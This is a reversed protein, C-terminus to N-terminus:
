RKGIAFCALHGERDRCIIRGNAIAVHPWAAAAFINDKMALERYVKPSRKATEVLALKGNRGYVILRNDATVICSGPDGFAGGEWRQEGTQWDLCRVKQWVFYVHGDHVIPTCVKSPYKQQWVKEAGALTIKLKCIAYQNYASTVLVFNDKVAASAINNAFDTIWPYSAVTKGEKGADLRIVALNRQTLLAVCPVGEITIPTPGANHGAEDKLDSAWVEKGSKKDFAILNGRSSGVEVLLWSGHVLPSSTYGYDRQPARTLKPRRQVKYTEYLNLGWVKKGKASTDWCNLDGDSSLTYLLKTEPDFEPTSSPGSYLGEDGVHFRGYEPTRYGTSWLEKGDHASLCRAVDQGGSRGLVFVQDGIVLPSSAGSGVNASWTAKAPLWRGDTWGSTEDTLGNRSPGRWHPWDAAHISHSFSFAILIFASRM